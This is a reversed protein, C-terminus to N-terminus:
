TVPETQPVPVLSFHTHVAHWHTQDRHLVITARGHRDYPKGDEDFGVSHWPVAAWALGDVSMVSLRSYDFDFGETFPWVQLWQRDVLDDLGSATSAVTGFGVVEPAFMARGSDIDRERVARAFDRLWNSISTTDSM